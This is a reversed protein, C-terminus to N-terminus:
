KLDKRRFFFVGASTTLAVILLSYLPMQWMQTQTLSFIQISQGSPLFDQLFQCIARATPGLYRPNAVSETALEPVGSATLVYNDYFEPESLRSDLMSSLLLLGLALLISIVAVVAKRQNLMSLMTFVACFALISMVGVLVTGALVGVQMSSLRLDLLLFGFLLVFALCIAYFLISALAVTMFNALYIETRTRGVILKNRITGDSYETGLFLSCFVASLIGMLPQHNFILHAPSSLAGYELYDYYTSFSFSVAYVVMGLMCIWFAKNKRLSSVNASLVRAM